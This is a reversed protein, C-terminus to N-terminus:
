DGIHIINRDAIGMIVFGKKCYDPTDMIYSIEGSWEKGTYGNSGFEQLLLADGVKFPRDHKRVEFTKKGDVIHGFFPPNCKLAHTM